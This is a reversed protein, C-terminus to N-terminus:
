MMMVDHKTVTLEPIILTGDSTQVSNVPFPRGDTRRWEFETTSRDTTTVHLILSHCFPYHLILTYCFPTHTYSMSPFSCNLIATQGLLFEENSFITQDLGLVAASFVMVGSVGSVSDSVVSVLVLVSVVSVSVSVVLVIVSVVSVVSVM